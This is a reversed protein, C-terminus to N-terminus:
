YSVTMNFFCVTAFTRTSYMQVIVTTSKNPDATVTGEYGGYIQQGTFDNDRRALYPDWTDGIGPFAQTTTGAGGDSQTAIAHGVVGNFAKWTTEEPTVSEVTFQGSFRLNIFATTSTTDFTATMVDTFTPPWVDDPVGPLTTCYPENPDAANWLRYFRVKTAPSYEAGDAPLGLARIKGARPVGVDSTRGFESARGFKESQKPSQCGLGVLLWIVMAARCLDKSRRAM